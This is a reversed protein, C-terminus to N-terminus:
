KGSVKQLASIDARVKDLVPGIGNSIDSLSQTLTKFGTVGTAADDIALKLASISTTIGGDKGDFATKFKNVMETTENLEVQLAKQRETLGKTIDDEPSFEDKKTAAKKYAEAIKTGKDKGYNEQLAKLM